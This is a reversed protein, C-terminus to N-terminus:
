SSTSIMPAYTRPSLRGGSEVCQFSNTAKNSSHFSSIALCYSSNRWWSYTVTKSVDVETTTPRSAGPAPSSGTSSPVHPARVLGAAPVDTSPWSWTTSDGRRGRTGGGIYRAADAAADVELQLQHLLQEDAPSEIQEHKVTLRRHGRAYAEAEDVAVAAALTRLMNASPHGLGTRREDVDSIEKKGAGM